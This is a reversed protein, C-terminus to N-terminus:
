PQASYGDFKKRIWYGLLLVPAWLWAGAVWYVIQPNELRLEHSTQNDFFLSMVVPLAVVVFLARRVVFLGLLFFPVAVIAARSVDTPGGMTVAVSMCLTFALTM